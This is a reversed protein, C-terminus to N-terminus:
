HGRGAIVEGRLALPAGFAERLRDGADPQKLVALEADFAQRMRELKHMNDRQGREAQETLRRYEPMSLIVAQPQDHNTVLVKGVADVTRMIGRWGERKVDSAPKRELQALPEGAARHKVAATM